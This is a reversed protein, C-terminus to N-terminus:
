GRARRGIPPQFTRTRFFKLSAAALLLSAFALAIGLDVFVSVGLLAGLAASILAAHVLLSLAALLRDYLTPGAFLRLLVLAAAVALTLGAALPIM